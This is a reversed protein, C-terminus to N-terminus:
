SEQWQQSTHFIRLIQIRDEQVRYRVVYPYVAIVLERLGPRHGPRGADPFRQLSAIADRITGSVKTAAAPDDLAIYDEASQLDQRAKAFWLLKM